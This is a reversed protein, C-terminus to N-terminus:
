WLFTHRTMLSSYILPLQKWAVIPIDIPIYSEKQNCRCNALCKECKNFISKIDESISPWYVSGKARQICKDIGLYSDDHLLSLLEPQFKLPIIIRNGKVVIGDIISLEGANVLDKHVISALPKHNSLVITSRGYCFTHFKEVGAIVGLLEWEINAYWSETDTLTKSGYAVPLLDNPIISKECDDLKTDIQHGDCAESEHEEQVSQMLAMGIAKQSADVELYLKKKSDYYKVLKPNCLEDVITNFDKSHQPHWLFENEKKLLARLNITMKAINPSFRSLYNVIGLFSQLLPESKPEPLNQIAEIKRPDPKVGDASITVGYFSISDRKFTCKDPNFKMRDLISYLARDHDDYGFIVIDDAIGKYQPIDQFVEDIKFQYVDSSLM